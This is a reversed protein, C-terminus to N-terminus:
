YSKKEFKYEIHNYTDMQIVFSPDRDKLNQAMEVYFRRNLGEQNHSSIVAGDKNFKGRVLGGKVFMGRGGYVNEEGRGDSEAGNGKVEEKKFM